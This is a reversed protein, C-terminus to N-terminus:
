LKVMLVGLISKSLLLFRKLDHGIIMECARRVLFIRRKVLTPAIEKLCQSVIHFDYTEELTSDPLWPPQLIQEHYQETQKERPKKLGLCGWRLRRLRGYLVSWLARVPLM